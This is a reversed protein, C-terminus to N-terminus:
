LWEYKWQASSQILQKCTRVTVLMCYYERFTFPPTNPKNNFRGTKERHLTCVYVHICAHVCVHVCLVHACLVHVCMCACVYMCVCVHACVVCACVVCVHVCMCACVVCAFVVCACVVCACVYLVHVCLVHVCVHVCICGECKYRCVKVERACLEVLM